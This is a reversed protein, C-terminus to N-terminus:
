WRKTQQTQECSYVLYLACSKEKRLTKGQGPNSGPDVAHSVQTSVVLDGMLILTYRHYHLAATINTSLGNAKSILQMCFTRKKWQLFGMQLSVM